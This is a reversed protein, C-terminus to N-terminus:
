NEAKWVHKVRPLGRINRFMRVRKAVRNVYLNSLLTLAVVVFVYKTLLLSAYIFLDSFISQFISISFMAYVALFAYNSKARQYLWGYLAGLMALIAAAGFISYEKILPFYMTFVNTPFGPSIEVFPYHISLIETKFGFARIISSWANQINQNNSFGQILDYQSSFAVTGGLFYNLATHGIYSNNYARSNAAFNIYYLGVFLVVFSVSLTILTMLFQKRPRLFIFIIYNSIIIDIVTGKSGSFGGYLFGVVVSALYVFLHFKSRTTLFNILAMVTLISSFLYVNAFFGGGGSVDLSAQRIERLVNTNGSLGTLQDRVYFPLISTVLLVSIPILANPRLQDASKNKKDGSSQGYISLISFLLGGFLVILLPIPELTNYFNANLCIGGFVGTWTAMMLVSPNTISRTLRFFIIVSLLAILTVCYIM